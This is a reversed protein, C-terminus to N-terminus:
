AAMDLLLEVLEQIEPPCPGEGWRRRFEVSLLEHQLAKRRNAHSPRRWPDDWPSDSRDCLQSFSKHWAWWEVVTYGWLCWHFAGVNAPWYRLQQQGAGEIEKVDKFTQEISTRGAVAELIDAVSASPDTCFYALWGDEERVLVVRIIGGAPQWTALFTKVTKTVEEQYQWCTVQQWGRAHGARKALSIRNLGYKRPRGPGRQRPPPLDRLAADCRLRGVLTVHDTQAERLVPRKGYFGDVVFWIPKGTSRLQEAAWHIQEAALELKTVFDPRHDPAITPLDKQRIYLDALLPLAMIDWDPHEVVLATTVWIHGYLFKQQAPGPTPNHHIGAGEVCPGYRQTPTDDLALLWRPGPDIDRRLDALLWGACLTIKSRGLTGLLTYGRRFEEAIGGARFWSTATRRGHGLLEGVFLPEALDRHRKDLTSALHDVFRKVPDPPPRLIM